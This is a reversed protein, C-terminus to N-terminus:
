HSLLASGMLSVFPWGRTLIDRFLVAPPAPAHPLAPPEAPGGGANRRPCSSVEGARSQPPDKFCSTAELSCSGELLLVKKKLKVVCM